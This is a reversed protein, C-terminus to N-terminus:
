LDYLVMSFLNTIIYLLAIIYPVLFVRAMNRCFRSRQKSVSGFSETLLFLFLMIHAIIYSLRYLGEAQNVACIFNAILTIFFLALIYPRAKILKEM